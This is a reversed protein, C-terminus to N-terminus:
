RSATAPRNGVNIQVRRNLPEAVGDATARALQTEGYAQIVIDDERVGQRVLELAVNEARRRSMEMNATASGMTDAHGHLHYITRGPQYGAVIFRMGSVWGPAVKASGSEFFPGWFHWLRRFMPGDRVAELTLCGADSVDSAETKVRGMDVGAWMLELLTQDIKERDLATIGPGDPARLVVYFASGLATGLDAATERVAVYGATAMRATGPDFCVERTQSRAPSAFGLALAILLAVSPPTLNM